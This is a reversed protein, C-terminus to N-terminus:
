GTTKEIQYTTSWVYRDNEDRHLHFPSQVAEVSRYAVSSLTAAALGDLISFATYANSRATAYSTSRCVVELIPREYLRTGSGTSFARVPSQGASEYLVTVTNPVGPSDLMVAKMLNGTAGVTFATSQADLYAAIADLLPM